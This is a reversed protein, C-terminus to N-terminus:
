AKRKAIERLAFKQIKGTATKPLEMFVVQKPTKFGALRARVFAIIEAGTAIEGDKLEVFACPVEGWKEDPKAVVACLSVAAHHMIAAEVEVSSINEGGSIIIDKARDSIQFYSDPHQVAIDGSHFYGGAFAEATADPNKLYGKMVSNGRLMIEGQSVGDMPIQRMEADMVTVDDMMPSAVGQRAKIAIKDDEPLTGWEAENWYCETVHGYTETLGYVHM